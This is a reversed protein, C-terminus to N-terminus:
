FSYTLRAGWLRPLGAYVLGTYHPEAVFSSGASAGVNQKAAVYDKDTLNNGWLLLHWPGSDVHIQANVLTYGKMLTARNQFLRSYSDDRYAVDVRPTIEIPNGAIGTATRFTYGVGFNGTWTPAFPTEAGDLDIIEPGGTVVAFPNQVLGFSGLESQFYALGADFEWNNLYVQAGLEAGWVISDSRANQFQFLTASPLAAPGGLAFDAQYDDFVQYYVNFQTRVQRDYFAAKWGLEYNIVSMEDYANHTPTAFFDPNALNISGPTHGRSILFYYFNDDNRLYNLNIKWDFSNEDFKETFGAGGNELFTLETEIGMGTGAPDTATIFSVFDIAWNTFQDFKYRNWRAGAQLVFRESLDFEVQGFLATSREEKKWPTTYDFRNGNDLDFGIGNKTYDPIDSDYDQWFAGVVWRVRADAPSLIDIEQSRNTFTGGARFGFPAPNPGNIDRNARTDVTSYGTLSDIQIGNDLTWSLKLSAREGKDRYKHEGNAILHRIDLEVGTLPDLGTTGHNGFYLNDHDIKFVADFSDTPAWRVGLRISKLDRDDSGYYPGAAVGTGGPLPNTEIRDFLSDREELHGSLRLALNDGVPVNLVGTTEWAGKNGAGVMLSGEFRELDPDRTRIFVAGAAAAKGAFTGQPGRLVEVSAMDYYPANQFYGTLTPVGDRYIVVGSPLDIDVRAQGIGRINFTNASAYDAIQVGPAAYQLSTLGVVGKKTLMEENLVTASLASTQLNESRREATVLVEEVISQSRSEAQAATAAIVAVTALAFASFSAGIATTTSM